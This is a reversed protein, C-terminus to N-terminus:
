ADMKKQSLSQATIIDGARVDSYDERVHNVEKLINLILVCEDANLEEPNKM